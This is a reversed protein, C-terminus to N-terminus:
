AADADNIPGRIIATIPVKLGDAIKKVTEPRAGRKDDTEIRSLSSKNIGVAEAFAALGWGRSERLARIAHGNPNM